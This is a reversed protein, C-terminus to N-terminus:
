TGEKFSIRGADSRRALDDYLTLPSSGTATGLVAAPKATLLDEISDAAREAIAEATDLIVLKM